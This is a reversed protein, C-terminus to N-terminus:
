VTSQLLNYRTFNYFTLYTDDKTVYGPGERRSPFTLDVLDDIKKMEYNGNKISNVLEEFLCRISRM